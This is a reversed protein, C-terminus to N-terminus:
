GYAGTSQPNGASTDIEQVTQFITPCQPDREILCLSLAYVKQTCLTMEKIGNIM